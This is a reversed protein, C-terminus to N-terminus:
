RLGTTDVVSCRTWARIESLPVGCPRPECLSRVAAQAPVRVACKVSGLHSGDPSTTTPSSERQHIAAVHEGAGYLVVKCRDEILSRHADASDARNETLGRGM